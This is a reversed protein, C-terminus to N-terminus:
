YMKYMPVDNRKHIVDNFNDYAYLQLRAWKDPSRSKKMLMAYVISNEYQKWYIASMEQSMNSVPPSVIKIKGSVFDNVWSKPANLDYYSRITPFAKAIFEDTASFITKYTFPEAVRPKTISKDPLMAFKLPKYSQKLQQISYGEDTYIETGNAIQPVGVAQKVWAELEREQGEGFRGKFDILGADRIPTLHVKYESPIIDVYFPIIPLELGYGGWVPHISVIKNVLESQIKAGKADRRFYSRIYNWEKKLRQAFKLWNDKMATLRSIPKKDFQDGPYLWLLGNVMRAPYGNLEGETSYKRLFENHTNSFFNKQLNVVFGMSSFAVWYAFASLLTTFTKLQDDGQAYFLLGEDALGYDKMIDHAMMGEAVNAITDLMATWQWGSLIGNSWKCSWKSKSHNYYITTNNVAYIISKMVRVMEDKYTGHGFEEILNLIEELMINVMDKSVHADFASQDIPVAWTGIGEVMEEWMKKTQETTQWLTSVKSGKLFPQLWTDIYRMKCTESFGANIITRVKPYFEMKVSTNAKGRVDDRIKRAKEKASYYLSKAYKNNKIKIPVGGLEYDFTERKEDFAGGTTGTQTVDSAFDDISTEMPNNKMFGSRLVKRVKERFKINFKETNGDYVPVFSDSVWGLVKKWIQEGQPQKKWGIITALDVYYYWNEIQPGLKKMMDSAASMLEYDGIINEFKEYLRTRDVYELHKKYFHWNISLVPFGEYYVIQEGKFRQKVKFKNQFKEDSEKAIKYVDSIKEMRKVVKNKTSLINYLMQPKPVLIKKLQSESYEYKKLLLM